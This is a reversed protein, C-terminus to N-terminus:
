WYKAEFSISVKQKKGGEERRLPCCYHLVWYWRKEAPFLYFFCFGTLLTIYLSSFNWEHVYDLIVAKSVMTLHKLMEQQNRSCSNYSMRRTKLIHIMWHNWVASAIASSASSSLPSVLSWCSCGGHLKGYARHCVCLHSHNYIYYIFTYGHFIFFYFM